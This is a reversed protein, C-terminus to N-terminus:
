KKENKKRLLRSLYILGICVLSIFSLISSTVIINGGCVKINIDVNTEDNDQNKDGKVVVTCVDYLDTGDISVSIKTTGPKIAKVLGESVTAVDEYTSEWNLSVLVGQPKIEYVLSFDEEVELEIEKTSFTISEPKATARECIKKTNNNANGWIRCAYEPHDIFPNRNGQLSEAAENRVKERNQVPYMINWELLDSLKGMTHNASSDYEKDVLSLRSDAIVCYFIIRAADGRYTEDGLSGPDWGAEYNYTFFNNGRDSNDDTMTPRVMHIDDELPDNGRGGVTKSAPWVHERNMNGNYKASEGSYFATVTNSSKGPDTRIFAGPMSDYGVRSRLKDSNLTRLSSLLKTEDINAYYSSADGNTYAYTVEFPKEKILGGVNFVCLSLFTLSSLLVLRHCKMRILM